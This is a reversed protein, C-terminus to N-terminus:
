KGDDLTEATALPVLSTMDELVMIQVKAKSVNADAPVTVSIDVPTNGVPLAEDVKAEVALLKYGGDLKEYVAVVVTVKDTDATANLMNVVGSVEKGQTIENGGFVINKVFVGSKTKFTINGAVSQGNIDKVASYDVVIDAGGPLGNTFKVLVDTSDGALEASAAVPAGNATVAINKVSAKNIRNNFDLIIGEVDAPSVETGQEVSANELILQTTEKYEYVKVNDLYHIEENWTIYNFALKNIQQMPWAANLTVVNEVRALLNKDLDFIELSDITGGNTAPDYVIKMKYWTNKLLELAKTSNNVECLYGTTESTASSPSAVANYIGLTSGPRWLRALGTPKSRGSETDTLAFLSAYGVNATFRMDAEFVLKKDVPIPNGSFDAAAEFEVKAGGNGAVIKLVKGEGIGETSADIVKVSGTGKTQSFPNIDDEFGANIYAGEVAAEGTAFDVTKTLLDTGDTPKLGTLNITYSASATLKNKFTIKLTSGTVELKEIEPDAANESTVTIQSLTKDDLEKNFPVEIVMADASINGDFSDLVSLASYEYVKVDDLYIKEADGWSKAVFAIKGIDPMPWGANMTSLNEREIIVNGNEDMLSLSNITDVGDFVIRINYWTKNAIFYPLAEDAPDMFYSNQDGEITSPSLVAKFHPTGLRYMWALGNSKNRGPNTGGTLSFLKKYTKSGDISFKTEFVLKKQPIPTEFIAAAESLGSTGTTLKLINGGVAMGEDAASVIEATMGGSVASFPNKGNEFGAYIYAGEIPEEEPTPEATTKFNISKPTNGIKDLSKLGTLDITYNSSYELEDKLTIKLVTGEAEIAEIEPAAADESTITIGGFTEPDLAKNFPVEIINSEADVIGSFSDLVLLDAYEYVKVDDIYYVDENSWAKGGFGIKGIDPLPYGVNATKLGEKKIIVNGDSDAFELSDMTDGDSFVVKLSYWTNIEPIYAKSSDAPDNFYSTQNNEYTSPSLTAAWYPDKLRYLWALGNGNNRGTNTGGVITFLKKYVDLKTTFRVKTEFVLPKAVSIPNNFVADASFTTNKGSVLKLVSGSEGVGEASADVIEASGGGSVTSFPNNNDEFSANIYYGDTPQAYVAASVPVTFLGATLTLSLITSILKKMFKGKGKM